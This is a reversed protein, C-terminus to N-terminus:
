AADKGAQGKFQYYAEVAQAAYMVAPGAGTYIAMGMTAMVEDRSAGQKVASQAHFAICPECRMAVSIALAILEKTKVDLAKPELAARAIASFEKMVSVRGKRSPGLLRRRDLQHQAAPNSTCCHLRRRLKGFDALCVANWSPECHPEKGAILDRINEAVAAVMSEIMYGTKPVGVPVPTPEFPPTAICVSDAFVNKFTPNRQYKDVFIFGRSNALGAIGKGDDGMMCYVGRFGPIFMTLKSPLSHQRKPTCDEGVETIEALDAKARDLKANTIWKIDRDRLASELLGKAGGVGGLGLHGSIPSPPSM